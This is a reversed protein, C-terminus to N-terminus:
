SRSKSRLARQRGCPQWLAEAQPELLLHLRERLWGRQKLAIKQGRVKVQHNKKVDCLWRAAFCQAQM